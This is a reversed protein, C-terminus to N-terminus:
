TEGKDTIMRTKISEITNKLSPPLQSERKQREALQEYIMRFNAREISPNESQCIQIFGMRKVTEKAIPDSISDLAEDPRYMGFSSIARQVQRWGEGYDAYQGSMIRAAGERIDAITPSWKNTSVWEAIVTAALDYPLDCLHRFWLTVAKENILIKEKPYYTKIAAALEGFELETM